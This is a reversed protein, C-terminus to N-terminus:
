IELYVVFTKWVPFSTRIRSGGYAQEITSHHITVLDVENERPMEKRLIWRVAKCHKGFFTCHWDEKSINQHERVAVCILRKQSM